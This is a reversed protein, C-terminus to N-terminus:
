ESGRTGSSDSQRLVLLIHAPFGSGEGDRYLSTILRSSAGVAKFYQIGKILTLCLIISEYAVVIACYIYIQDSYTAFCGEPHPLTKSISVFELSEMFKQTNVGMAVTAAVLLVVLGCGVIKKEEWIAYTRIVLIAESVTFGLVLTWANVIYLAHCTATSINSVLDAYVCLGVSVFASYRDLIFVVKAITWRSGWIINEENPLTILHDYILLTSAALDLYTAFKVQDLAAIMENIGLDM